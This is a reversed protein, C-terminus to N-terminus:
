FELQNTKRTFTFKQNGIDNVISQVRVPKDLSGLVITRGDSLSLKLVIYANHLSALEDAELSATINMTQTILDGADTPKLTEKLTAKGAPINNLTHGVKLNITSGSISDINNINAWQILNCLFIKISM